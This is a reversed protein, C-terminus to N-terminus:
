GSNLRQLKEVCHDDIRMLIHLRQIQDLIARSVPPSDPDLIFDCVAHLALEFERQQMFEDFLDLFSNDRETLLVPRLDQLRGELEKMTSEEM